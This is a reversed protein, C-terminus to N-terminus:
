RVELRLVSGDIGVNGQDIHSKPFIVLCHVPEFFGILRPELCDDEHTRLEIWQPAIRSESIKHATEAEPLSSIGAGDARCVPGYMGSERPTRLTCAVVISLCM